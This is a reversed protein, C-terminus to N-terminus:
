SPTERRLSVDDFPRPKKMVHEIQRFEGVDCPAYRPTAVDTCVTFGVEDPPHAVDCSVVHHGRKRQQQSWAQAVTGLGGTVLILKGM